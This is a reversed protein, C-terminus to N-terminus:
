RGIQLIKLFCVWAMAFLPKENWKGYQVPFDYDRIIRIFTEDTTVGEFSTSDVINEKDRTSLKPGLKDLVLSYVSVLETQLALKV